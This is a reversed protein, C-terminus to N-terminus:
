VPGQYAPKMDRYKWTRAVPIPLTYGGLRYSVQNAFALKADSVMCIGPGPIKTPVFYIRLLRRTLWYSVRRRESPNLSTPIRRGPFSCSSVTSHHVIPVGEAVEELQLVEHVLGIVVGKQARAIADELPDLREANMQLRIGLKVQYPHAAM